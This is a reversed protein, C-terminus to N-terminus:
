PGKMTVRTGEQVRYPVGVHAGVGHLVTSTRHAHAVWVVTLDQLGEKEALRRVLPNSSRSGCTTDSSCNPRYRGTPSSVVHRDRLFETNSRSPACRQPRTLSEPPRRRVGPLTGADTPAKPPGEADGPAALSSDAAGAQQTGAVPSRQEQPATARAGEDLEAPTCLRGSDQAPGRPATKSVAASSCPSSLRQASGCDRTIRAQTPAHTRPTPNARPRRRPNGPHADPRTLAAELITASASVDDTDETERTDMSVHLGDRTNEASLLSAVVRRTSSPARWRLCPLNAQTVDTYLIPHSSVDRPAPATTQTTRLLSHGSGHQSPGVETRM